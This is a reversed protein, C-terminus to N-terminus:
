RDNEVEYKECYVKTTWVGPKDVFHIIQNNCFDDDYWSANKCKTCDMYRCYPHRDLVYRTGKREALVTIPIGDNGLIRILRPM